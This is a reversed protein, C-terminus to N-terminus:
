IPKRAPFNILTSLPETSELIEYRLGLRVAEAATALGAVGAGIVVLDLAAGDGSGRAPDAAVAQAAKAGSDLALKLLPIGTLDGVIFVGPIATSGDSGIEPLPEVTGAPWRTHLWEAYRALAQVM